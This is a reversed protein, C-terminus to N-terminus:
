PAQSASGAPPRVELGVVLLLDIIEFTNDPLAISATRGNPTMSVFDRHPVHMQRGDALHITFPQFPQARLVKRFHDATVRTERM